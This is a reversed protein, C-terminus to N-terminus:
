LDIDDDITFSEGCGCAGSQNPNLFVIKYNIGDKQYDITSGKIFPFSKADIYVTLDTNIVFEHDNAEAQDVYDLVYQLGSCGARKLSIRIGISNEHKTIQKQIYKVADPTLKIQDASSSEANPDHITVSSNM